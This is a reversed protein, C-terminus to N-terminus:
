RGPAPDVRDIPGSFRSETSGGGILNLGVIVSGPEARHFNQKQDFIVKGDMAVYLRHTLEPAASAPYMSGMGITVEHSVAYDVPILSSVLGSVGWHDFGFKIRATDQFVVYVFDGM